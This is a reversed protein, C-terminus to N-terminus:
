PKQSLAFLRKSQTNKLSQAKSGPKFSRPTLGPRNWQRGERRGLFNGIMSTTQLRRYFVPLFLLAHNTLLVMVPWDGSPTTKRSAAADSRCEIIVEQGSPREALVASTAIEELVGALVIILDFRLLPAGWM